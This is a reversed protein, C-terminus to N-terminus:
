VADSEKEADLIKPIINTLNRIIMEESEFIKTVPSIKFMAVEQSGVRTYKKTYVFSNKQSLRKMEGSDQLEPLELFISPTFCSGVHTPCSAVFGLNKQMIYEPLRSHVDKFYHEFKIVFETLRRYMESLSSGCEEDYYVFRLHDEHNYYVRFKKDKSIYMGSHHPFKKAIPSGFLFSGLKYAKKEREFLDVKQRQKIFENMEKRVIDGKPVNADYKIEKEVVKRAKTSQDEKYAQFITGKMESKAFLKLVPVVMAELKKRSALDMTGILPFQQLNRIFKYECGHIQKSEVGGADGFECLDYPKHIEKHFRFRLNKTNVKLRVNDSMNQVKRVVLEFFDKFDAYDEVSMAYTGCRSYPAIIGSSICRFFRQQEHSELMSIQTLAMGNCVQAMINSHYEEAIERVKQRVKDFKYCKDKPFVVNYGTVNSSNEWDDDVEVELIDKLKTRNQTNQLARTSNIGRKKTTTFLKTGSFFSGKNSRCLYCTIVGKKYKYKSTKDIIIGCKGCTFCDLCYAKRNITILSDFNVFSECVVCEYTELENGDGRKLSIQKSANRSMSEKRKKKKGNLKRKSKIIGTSRIPVRESPISKKKANNGSKIVFSSM